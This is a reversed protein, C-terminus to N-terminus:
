GVVCKLLGRCSTFCHAPPWAAFERDGADRHLLVPLCGTKHAIEMDIGADGVIWVESGPSVPTRALALCLSEPAPKDRTADGAGVISEFYGSWGLHAAEARLYAGTKNSLVALHVGASSLSGLLEGADEIPRLREIHVREFAAYFIRRAEEWRDGFLGPFTDRLSNRVRERTEEFTWPQHDMAELTVMLSEHIVPWTDVLTNDWDFVIAAPPSPADTV